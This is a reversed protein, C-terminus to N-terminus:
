LSLSIYHIATETSRLTYIFVNSYLEFERSMQVFNNQIEFQM